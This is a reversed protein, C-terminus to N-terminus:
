LRLLVAGHRDAPERGFSQKYGIEYANLFEPAVEPAASVIGANFSPSEYGRGYSAYALIDPTPTFEVKADGTVESDTIALQRQAYGNPLIM